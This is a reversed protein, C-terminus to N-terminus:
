KLNLAANIDNVLKQVQAVLNATNTEITTIRKDLDSYKKKLEDIQQQTHAM